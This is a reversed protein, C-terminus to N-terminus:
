PAPELQRNLTLANKVAAGEPDNNFFVYTASLESRWGDIREAWSRLQRTSYSGAYKTSTPGHLRVYTFDSTIELPMKMDAFDHICFAAQYKRLLQFVEPM